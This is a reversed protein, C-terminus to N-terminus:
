WTITATDVTAGEDDIRTLAVGTEDFDLLSFGFTQSSVLRLVEEEPHDEVSGNVDYLLAGGGGDTVYTVGDVLMREYSHNHAQLVLHVGHEVFLPHLVARQELQPGHKSLTYIPRHYFPVVTHITPDATAEALRAEIWAVQLSGPTTLKHDQDDTESDIALFRVGGHDWHWYAQGEVGEAQGDLLRTYMQSFEDHDEHEHNGPAAHLPASTLVPQMAWSLGVWTDSPNSQYQMDGGHLMLEVGHTGAGTFVGDSYPSMTDGVFMARFPSGPSPPATLTGTHVDDGLDLSWGIREGPRVDSLVLEHLHHPGSYDNYEFGDILEEAPWYHTLDATSVSLPFSEVADARTLELTLDVMNRSEVRFRATGPAVWQWYPAFSVDVELPSGVGSDVSASSDSKDATGACAAVALAGSICFPRLPITMPRKPSM